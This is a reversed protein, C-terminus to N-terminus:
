RDLADLFAQKAQGRRMEAELRDGYTMFEPNVPLYLGNRWELEIEANTSANNAKRRSLKRTGGKTEALFM